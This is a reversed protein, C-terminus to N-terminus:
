KIPQWQKCLKNYNCKVENLKKGCNLIKTNLKIYQHNNTNMKVYKHLRSYHTGLTQQGTCREYVVFVFFISV